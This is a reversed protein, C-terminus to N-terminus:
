GALHASVVAPFVGDLVVDNGGQFFGTARYCVHARGAVAKGIQKDSPGPNVIQNFDFGLQSLEGIGLHFKVPLVGRNMNDSGDVLGEPSNTKDSLLFVGAVVVPTKSREGQWGLHGSTFNSVAIHVFGIM